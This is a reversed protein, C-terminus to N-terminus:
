AEERASLVPSAACNPARHGRRRWCGIVAQAVQDPDVGVATWTDHPWSRLEGTLDNVFVLEGPERDPNGTLLDYALSGAAQSDRPHLLAVPM